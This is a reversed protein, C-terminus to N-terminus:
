SSYLVEKIRLLISPVDDLRDYQKQIENIMSALIISRVKRNDELWKDFTLREELLSGEPLVM